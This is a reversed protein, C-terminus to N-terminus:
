INSSSMRKLTISQSEEILRIKTVSALGKLWDPIGNADVIGTVPITGISSEGIIIQKASYRNLDAVVDALPRRVFNLQGRRWALASQLDVWRKEGMKGEASYAVQTSAGLLLHQPRLGRSEVEVIGHTVTVTAGGNNRHVNFETGIATASGSETEVIFPRKPDRAVTFLVEGEVLAIRRADSSFSVSVASRGGLLLQSGDPLRIERQKGVGTTYEAETFALTDSKRNQYDTIFVTGVGILILAASAAIALPSLWRPLSYGKRLVSEAALASRSATDSSVSECAELFREVCQFAAQNEPSADIRDLIDQIEDPSINEDDLRLVDSAAQYVDGTRRPTM